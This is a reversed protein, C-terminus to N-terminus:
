AINKQLKAHIVNAGINPSHSQKRHLYIGAFLRFSVCM